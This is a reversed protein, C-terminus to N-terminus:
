GRSFMHPTLWSTGNGGQDGTPIPYSTGEERPVRTVTLHLTRDGGLDSTLTPQSQVDVGLVWNPEAAPDGGRHSVLHPRSRHTRREPSGPCTTCSTGKERPVMYLTLRETRFEGKNGMPNPWSTVEKGPVGPPNPWSTRDGGPISTMTPWSMRHGGPDSTPTLRYTVDGRPDGSPTPQSRGEEQPVMSTTPRSMRDGGQAGTPTLHSTGDGGPVRTPTLQLTM